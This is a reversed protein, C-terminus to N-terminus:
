FTHPTSHNITNHIPLSSLFFLLFLNPFFSKLNLHQKEQDKISLVNAGGGWVRPDHFLKLDSLYGWTLVRTYTGLYRAIIMDIGM